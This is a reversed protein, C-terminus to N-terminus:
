LHNCTGFIIDDCLIILRLNCYKCFNGIINFILPHERYIINNRLINDDLINNIHKNIIYMNFVDENPLFYIIEKIIDDPLNM